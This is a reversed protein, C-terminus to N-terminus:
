FSSAEPKRIKCGGGLGEGADKGVFGHTAQAVCPLSFVKIERDLEAVLDRCMLDQESM